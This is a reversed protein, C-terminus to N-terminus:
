LIMFDKLNSVGSLDDLGVTLGNGNQKCFGHGEAVVGHKKFVELPLSVEVEGPLRNWNMVVIESFLNKRAHLSFRGLKLNLGDDRM